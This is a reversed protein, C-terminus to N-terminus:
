LVFALDIARRLVAFGTMDDAFQEKSEVSGAERDLVRCARNNSIAFELTCDAIEDVDAFSCLSFFRTLQQKALKVMPDLIEKRDNRTHDRHSRLACSGRLGHSLRQSATQM